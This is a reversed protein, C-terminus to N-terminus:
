ARFGDGPGIWRAFRAPVEAEVTLRKDTFPHPFALSRAHLMLAKHRDDRKGYKDDGAVPHGQDALQVRIQHKRGTILTLDLVSFPGSERIVTYATRALKGRSPDPTSYVRHAENEVLYSSLTGSREPLRGHVVALYKKETEPWRDQLRRKAEGTKAFVLVGSTERDLRHVIFVRNRSRAYGKRVYDTLIWYATRERERETSVTLLGAPKDVALVDRDEYLITMGGPRRRSTTNM